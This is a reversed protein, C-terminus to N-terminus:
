EDKGQLKNKKEVVDGLYIWVKVGCVGWSAQSKQESYDIDARFKQRPVAGEQYWETRAIEAGSLRGACEVRIGLAGARKSNQVYRKIVRRCSVGKKSIEYAVDKAVCTANLEPRKIDFVKLRVEKSIMKSIAKAIGDIEAGKRGVIYSPKLCTIKLEVCDRLRSIVVRAIGAQKLNADLYKRIQVDEYLTKAFVRPDAYWDADFDQSIGLRLARASSKNGM